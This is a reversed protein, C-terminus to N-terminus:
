RTDLTLLEALSKISREESNRTMGRRDILVAEIGVARPGVLDWRPDDGVFLCDQPEVQLKGLVYDFIQRAPKRWGVDTCFFAADIQSNLGFRAIEERWLTGPCGWPVNSIIAKRTGMAGLKQLAPLVDEYRHAIAFIPKMFHRCATMIVENTPNELQFIRTLRGEMPRVSYDEAEYNEAEVRQWVSEASVGLLGEQRLYGQVGIIAQRLIGPFESRSYYRLLTNGLDFLIANKM